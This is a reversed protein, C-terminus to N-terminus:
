GLNPKSAAFGVRGCSGRRKALKKSRSSAAPFEFEFSGRTQEVRNGSGGTPFRGSGTCVHKGESYLFAFRRGKNRQRAIKADGIIRFPLLYPPLQPLFM